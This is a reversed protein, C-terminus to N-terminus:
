GSGPLYTRQFDESILSMEDLDWDFSLVVSGDSQASLLRQGNQAVVSDANRFDLDEQEYGSRNCVMIPLGTDITRQEWEGDPGCGGPSWSSPSVLLRAGRDKLVQAVDNKYADACVLVGVRVGDCDIPEIEWGPTSWGESGPLAKIKRHKGIIEGRPDIVFVTNYIQGSEPDREPHSLFATVRYKKVSQCFSRMWHDPQPLIWDTGIVKQFLYGPICLEPTVVWDAGQEAAVGLASELLKRNHDVECVVPAV